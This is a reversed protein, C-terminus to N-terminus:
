PRLHMELARELDSILEDPEELGISLRVIWRSREEEMPHIPLTVVLSEYGGWSIARAFLNLENGFAMLKDRSQVKPELSFLGSSGCFSSKFLDSQEFSPLSIHHVRAVEPRDELWQAIQNAAAEHQAMRLKLTRLGRILLWAPFPHLIGGLLNIEREIIADIRAQSGCIVGATVDSHGALYKTASHCVLDVGLAHPNMFVPTAYSNDIITAIGRAKAERTIAPIDMLHFVLSTPSELYILSTEPRIANVIEEVSTGVVYTVTVGFRDLYTNLLSRVPGYVTDPAIVHSGASVCSLIAASLAAMGSGFVKAAETGELKALKAEAVEVTPNSIRSYFHPAVGTPKRISALLDEMRDFAFLSNQFIPPAVAGLLYDEEGWHSLLTGLGPEGHLAM